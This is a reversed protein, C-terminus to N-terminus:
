LGHEKMKRWLTTRHMDLRVAADRRNWQSAELARLIVDREDGLPSVARPTTPSQRSAPAGIGDQLHPPLCQPLLVEGRCRIFAHEIANELERVNGPWHYSLLVDLADGDIAHIPRGTLHRFLDMFHDVLLPIDETRERLPPVTIPMVNLRYFLDERFQSAAIAARLDRHTAAVIRCDVNITRGSGVREIEREQLVRLLKVQVQATLDGIEDLFITGGQAQEFRGVKDGIAGTFAGKVHGFLESELLNESLASCNVKVFDGARRLSCQHVASAVLQKGTGSEGLVLVTADSDKLQEVLDYIERMGHHRGILGHFTGEGALKGRMSELETVDRLIVVVGRETGNERLLCTTALLHRRRGAGDNLIVALGKEERRERLHRALLDQQPDQVQLQLAQLCSMGAASARSRGIMQAAARNLQIIRLQLDVAIIADAVSDFIAELNERQVLCSRIQDRLIMDAHASTETL